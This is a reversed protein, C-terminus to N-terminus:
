LSFVERGNVTLKKLDGTIEVNGDKILLSYQSSSQSIQNGGKSKKFEGMIMKGNLKVGHVTGKLSIQNNNTSVSIGSSLTINSSAFFNIIKKLLNM